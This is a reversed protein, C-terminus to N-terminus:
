KPNEVIRLDPKLWYFLSPLILLDSILAAFITTCVFVGMLATSTFASTVLTGFGAILIMSTIILARGTRITAASLAPYMAKRKLYEIRFRALYHISDDVAIGLAITFIVATSPKIDVNLFGMLGGTVILPVLNPVLAILMLRINKFLLAMIITIATIALLISSALSYVIKETLDASLITTGTVIVDMDPFLDAIVPNLEDRIQNIRSSGADETLATVRLKRYDFDTLRSLEDAENIELLLLYQAVAQDTLQRQEGNRDGTMVIDVEHMLTHLGTVRHIEPFNLLTAEFRHLRELIEGSVAGEPVGTDFIFEFPFQPSINETFFRSDRMLETNEGIDDFIKGNVNLTKFGLAFLLTILASSILIKGYHLRNIATLRTLFRNILPYFSGSKEDVVRKKRSISLVAPLFIITFLYAILVGLATYLGFKKMPVVTSSLLSAFGIATTVSTLFTASGLTMMMELISLKKNKGSERTDDYKSIMHVADAVGVCLLIPAITSSMIELYGGTLHMLALTFLLTSWVIVMPFLVGWITRYLFWLLLIILVSSVSIYWIIEGNLLNVYQNRFYPIGSIHFTYDGRYDSLIHNMDSILQNRNPYTNLEENIRLLISTATGAENIFLGRAFPDETISRRLSDEAAANLRDRSLYPNFTLNYGDSEINQASWLSIVEDLLEIKEFKETIALLDLLVKKSFLSDHHFGILITNDDRGFEEELIRYDHIVRDDEPYFGELNFDTRIQSAPYIALMAAGFLFFLVLRSHNLIFFGLQKM